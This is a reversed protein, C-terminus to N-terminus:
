DAFSHKSMVFYECVTAQVRQTYVNRSIKEITKAYNIACMIVPIIGVLDIEGLLTL